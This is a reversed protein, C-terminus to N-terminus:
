VPPEVADPYTRHGKPVLLGFEREEEGDPPPSGVLFVMCEQIEEPTLLTAMHNVLRAIKAVVLMLAHGPLGGPNGAAYAQCNEVLTLDRETFLGQTSKGDM